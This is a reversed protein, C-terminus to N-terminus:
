GFWRPHQIWVANVVLLLGGGVYGVAYAATSVRDIEGERAIHPLLSEYFVLSANVGINGLIYLAAGLKWDGRGVLGLAATTLVGFAVSAALMKKKAGAYDSIAGLAPSVLAILTMAITTAWAFRETAVAAPFGAAAVTTFYIPFVQIVTTYFVSNAADYLAWARLEPRHLGVRELFSSPVVDRLLPPAVM